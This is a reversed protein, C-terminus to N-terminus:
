CLKIMDEMIQKEFFENKISSDFVIDVEKKLSKKLEDLLKGQEILTKVNGKSCYIDIDSESNAEGRAYSGFLYIDKIGYRNLIPKIVEKIRKLTLVKKKDIDADILSLIYNNREKKNDLYKIMKNNDKRIRFQYMKYTNKNYENIYKNQNFSMGIEKHM